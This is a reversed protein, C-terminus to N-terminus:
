VLFRGNAIWHSDDILLRSARHLVGKLFCVLVCWFWHSTDIVSEFDLGLKFFPWWWNKSDMIVSIKLSRMWIAQETFPDLFAWVPFHLMLFCYLYFIFIWQLQSVTKACATFDYFSLQSVPRTKIEMNDLMSFLNSKSKANTKRNIIRIKILQNM